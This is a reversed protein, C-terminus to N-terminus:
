CLYESSFDHMSKVCFNSICQFELLYKLLIEDNPELNTNKKELGCLYAAAGM